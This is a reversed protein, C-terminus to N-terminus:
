SEMVAVAINVLWGMLEECNMWDVGTLGDVVFIKDLTCENSM